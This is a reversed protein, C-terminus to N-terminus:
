TFIRDLDKAYEVGKVMNRVLFFEGAEGLSIMSSNHRNFAGLDDITCHKPLRNWTDYSLVLNDVRDARYDHGFGHGIRMTSLIAKKEVAGLRYVILYPVGYGLKKIEPPKNVANKEYDSLPGFYKITIKKGDTKSSTRLYQLLQKETPM